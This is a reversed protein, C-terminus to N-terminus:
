GLWADYAAMLEALAREVEARWKVPDSCPMAYYVEYLRALAKLVTDDM